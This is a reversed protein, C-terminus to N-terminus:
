QNEEKKKAALELKLDGEKIWGIKRFLLGFAWTLVSPLVFLLLIIGVVLVFTDVKGSSQAITDVVGVLGSTGMGGGSPGCRLKFICTAVPGLLASAITPPLLIRGNKMINHIQLMSTGMGQAIFGSLGNEKYSMAAFGMMQCACGVVAAGGALLMADADAGGGAVVTSSVAVWIAASSTPMTLLVGMVVAIVIGMLFPSWATAVAIGRGIM